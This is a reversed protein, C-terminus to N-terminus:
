RLPSQPRPLRPLLARPTSRSQQPLSTASGFAGVNANVTALTAAVSGPGTATLDGTLATIANPTPASACDKLLGTTGSFCALNNAVVPATPMISNVIDSTVARLGTPTIAGVTNDIFTTTIETNIQAKTSQALSPGAGLLLAAFIALLKKM